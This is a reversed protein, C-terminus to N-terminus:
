KKEKRREEIITSKTERKIGPDVTGEHGKRQNHSTDKTNTNKRYNRFKAVVGNLM